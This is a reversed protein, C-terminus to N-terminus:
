WLALPMDGPTFVIGVLARYSVHHFTSGDTRQNINYRYGNAELKLHIGHRLQYTMGGRADYSHYHGVTLTLSRYSNYGGSVGMNLKRTGTYSLSATLAELNSTIYVGNGPSIGRNYHFDLSARQFSRTLRAELRPLYNLRYLAQIGLSQGIIAAIVPDLQVRATGLTEVRSVGILSQFEWRRTPRMSHVIGVTHIDSAGFGQTFSYHDFSYTMGITSHRSYRYTMDGRARSGMYGFLASNRYHVIFGDGGMNFSLRASKQYTLDGMTSVYGMRADLLQTTPVNAFSPEVLWGSGFYGYARAYTGALERLMFQVHRSLQHSVSLSLTQDTGDYYTHQNYHRYIGRYDLGLVTRKWPRYGYAGFEAQAGVADVAVLEGNPRITFASLGSDYVGGVSAFPRFRIPESRPAVSPNTGRSLVAPGEYEQEAAPAADPEQAALSLSFGVVIATISLRM